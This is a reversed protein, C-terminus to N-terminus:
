RGGFLRRFPRTVIESAKRVAKEVKVAAKIAVGISLPLIPMPLKELIKQVKPKEMEVREAATVARMTPGGARLPVPTPMPAPIPTPLRIAAPQDPPAETPVAVPQGTPAEPPPPVPYGGSPGPEVEEWEEREYRYRRGEKLMGSVPPGPFGGASPALVDPPLLKKPEPALAIRVAVEAMEAGFGLEGLAVEM